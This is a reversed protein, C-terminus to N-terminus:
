KGGNIKSYAALFAEPHKQQAENYCKKLYWGTYLVSILIILYDVVLPLEMFHRAGLAGLLALWGAGDKTIFSM